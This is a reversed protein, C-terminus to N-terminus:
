GLREIMNRLSVVELRRLRARHFPIQVTSAYVGLEYGGTAELKERVAFLDDLYRLAEPPSRTTDAYQAASVAQTPIRDLDTRGKTDMRSTPTAPEFGTVGVM